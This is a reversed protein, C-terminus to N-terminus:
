RVFFTTTTTTTTTTSSAVCSAQLAGLLSSAFTVKDCRVKAFATRRQVKRLVTNLRRRVRSRAGPETTANLENQVQVAASQVINLTEIARDCRTQNRVIIREFRAIRRACRLSLEAASTNSTILLSLSVAALLLNGIRKMCPSWGYQKLPPIIGNGCLM